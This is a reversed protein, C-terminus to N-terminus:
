GVAIGLSGLSQKTLSQTGDRMRLRADNIRIQRGDVGRRDPGDLLFRNKTPATAMARNLVQVYADSCGM